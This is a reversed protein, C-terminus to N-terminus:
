EANAKWKIAIPLCFIRKAWTNNDATLFASHCYRKDWHSSGSTLNEVCIHTIKANM